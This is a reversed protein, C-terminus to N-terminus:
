SKTLAEIIAGHVPFEKLLQARSALTFDNFDFGPTVVCSLLAFSGPHDVTAGFWTGARMLASFQQHPSPEPGLLITKYGAEDSLSHLTVANGSHFFWLEDSLLAHFCSPQEATLLFYIATAFARSNPYRDPLATAPIHEDSRYTERYFGGEPHPELRLQDIWYQASNM